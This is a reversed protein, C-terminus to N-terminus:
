RHSGRTSRNKEATKKTVKKKVSRKSKQMAAKELASQMKDAIALLRGDDPPDVKKAEVKICKILLRLDRSTFPVPKLMHIYALWLLEIPVHVESVLVWDLEPLRVSISDAIELKKRM